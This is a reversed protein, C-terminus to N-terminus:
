QAGATAKKYAEQWSMGSKIYEQYLSEPTKKTAAPAASAAQQQPVAQQPAQPMQPVQMQPPEDIQQYGEPLDNGPANIAQGEEDVHPFPTFPIPNGKADSHILNGTKDRQNLKLITSSNLADIAQNLKAAEQASRARGNAYQVRDHNTAIGAEMKQKLEQLRQANAELANRSDIAYKHLNFINTEHTKALDDQNQLHMNKYADSNITANALAEQTALKRENQQDRLAKLQQDQQKNLLDFTNKQSKMSEDIYTKAADGSGLIKSIQIASNLQATADKERLEKDNRAQQVTSLAQGVANPAGGGFILALGAAARGISERAGNSPADAQLLQSLARPMLKQATEQMLQRTQGTMGSAAALDSMVDSTAPAFTGTVMSQTLPSGLVGQLQGVNQAMQTGLASATSPTSTTDILPTGYENDNDLLGM